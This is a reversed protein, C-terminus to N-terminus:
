ACCQQAPKAQAEAYEDHRKVFDMMKQENRGKPAMDLLMMTTLVDDTGSGFNGYTLYISGDADKQFASLGPLEDHADAVPIRKYNFEVTEQGLQEKTFSVHFDFNFDSGFSSAWPFHWGMRRKYSEIKELPARSICTLTVDHNNLHALTGDLGDAFFSCGHCGQSWEPGFMFHYVLLQSRGEFVAGLSKKGQPTDFVYDKEIRLRPLGLRKTMLANRQQDLAQEEEALARRAQLWENSSAVAM